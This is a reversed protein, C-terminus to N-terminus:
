YFSAQKVHDFVSTALPPPPNDKSTKLDPMLNGFAKQFDKDWLM